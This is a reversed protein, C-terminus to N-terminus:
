GNVVETCENCIETEEMSFYYKECMPCKECPVDPKINMIYM